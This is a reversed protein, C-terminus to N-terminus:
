TKKTLNMLLITKNNGILILSIITNNNYSLESVYKELLLEKDAQVVTEFTERFVGASTEIKSIPNRLHYIYESGNNFTLKIAITRNSYLIYEANKITNAMNTGTNGNPFAGTVTLNYREVVSVTGDTQNNRNPFVPPAPFRPFTPIEHTGPVAPKIPEAPQKPPSPLKNKDTDQPFVMGIIVSSLIFAFVIRKM